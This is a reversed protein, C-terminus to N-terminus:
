SVSCFDQNTVVSHSTCRVFSYLRMKKKKAFPVLVRLLCFSSRFCGEGEYSWQSLHVPSHMVSVLCCILQVTVKRIHSEAEADSFMEGHSPGLDITAFPIASLCPAFCFESVFTFCSFKMGHVKWCPFFPLLQLGIYCVLFYGSLQTGTM